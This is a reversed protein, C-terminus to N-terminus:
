EHSFNIYYAMLILEIMYMLTVRGETNSNTKNCLIVEDCYNMFKGATLMSIAVIRCNKEVLLDFIETHRYFYSGELSVIFVLAGEQLEQALEWQKEDTVGLKIIKNLSAMKNQFHFGVQNAYELGFFAIQNAQYIMECVRHLQEYDINDYTFRINELVNDTYRQFIPQLDESTALNVKKSYDVDIKLTTEVEIKFGKYSDYGLSRIFRTISSASVFCLDALEYITLKPILNYNELIGKAIERDVGQAEGYNVCSLLQSVVSIGKAM